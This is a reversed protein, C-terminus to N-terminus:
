ARAKTKTVPGVVLLGRFLNNFRHIVYNSVYSSPMLAFPLSEFSIPFALNDLLLHTQETGKIQQCPASHGERIAIRETDEKRERNFDKRIKNGSM